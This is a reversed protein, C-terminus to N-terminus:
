ELEGRGSLLKKISSASPQDALSRRDLSEKSGHYGLRGSPRNIRALKRTCSLTIPSAHPSLAKLGATPSSLPMNPLGLAKRLAAHASRCQRRRHPDIRRESDRDLACIREGLAMRLPRQCEGTWWVIMPMIPHRSAHSGGGHREGASPPQLRKASSGAPHRPVRRSIERPKDREPMVRVSLVRSIRRLRRTLRCRTLPLTSHCVVAKLSVLGCDRVGAGM